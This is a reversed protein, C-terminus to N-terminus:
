KGSEYEGRGKEKDRCRREAERRKRDEGKKEEKEERGEGKSERCKLARGARRRGHIRREQVRLKLKRM